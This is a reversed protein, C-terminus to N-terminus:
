SDGYISLMFGMWLNFNTKEYKKGKLFHWLFSKTQGCGCKLPICELRSRSDVVSCIFCAFLTEM